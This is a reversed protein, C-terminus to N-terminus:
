KETKYQLMQLNILDFEFNQTNFFMPFCIEEAGFDWFAVNISFVERQIILHDASRCVYEHHHLVHRAALEEVVDHLVPLQLLLLGPAEELLDDGADVVAMSVVDYM